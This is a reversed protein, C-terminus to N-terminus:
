SIKPHDKEEIERNSKHLLTIKRVIKALVKKTPQIQTFILGILSLM